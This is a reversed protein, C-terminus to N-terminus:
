VYNGDAFIIEMAEQANVSTSIMMGTMMLLLVIRKMYIKIAALNFCNVHLELFFLGCVTRM